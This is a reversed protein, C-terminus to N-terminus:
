RRIHTQFLEKVPVEIDLQTEVRVLAALNDQEPVLSELVVKVEPTGLNLGATRAPDALQAELTTSLKALEPGLDVVAKDELEAIIKKNFVTALTNWLTSDLVNTLSINNLRVTQEFADLVPTATLYITGPVPLKKGPLMASFALNMTIGNPNGSLIVSNITVSVNGAASSETFEKGTLHQDALATLQSYAARILVNFQTSGPVYESRTLAPLAQPETAPITSQVSTQAELTFALGLKDSETRVGSFSFRNPVINLYMANNDPLELPINHPKWQAQMSERFQNCDIADLARQELGALQKRIAKDAKDKLNIDIGAVWELRPEQTWQYSMKATLGPCWNENVDIKLRLQANLAGYFDMSDINLVKAVDGRIGADGFFRMPVNIIVFDDQGSIQIQGERAVTYAWRATGCMKLAIVKKCIKQSGDDTHEAPVEQEALAVLDSYNIRARTSLRSQHVTSTVAKLTAPPPAKSLQSHEPRKEACASLVICLAVIWHARWRCLRQNM